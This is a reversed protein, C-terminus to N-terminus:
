GNDKEGEINIDYGVEALIRVLNIWEKRSYTHIEIGHYIKENAKKNHEKLMNRRALADQPTDHGWDYSLIDM